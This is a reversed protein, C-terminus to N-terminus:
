ILQTNAQQHNHHHHHHHNIDFDTWYFLQTLVTRVVTDTKHILKSNQLYTCQISNTIQKHTPPVRNRPQNLCQEVLRFTVPEIGSLTMPNKWQCLGEPRVINRPNVWSIASILVLSTEQPYLRSTRLATLRVVKIHRNNQFRPAEVEQFGWPRGPRYHSQKVKVKVSTYSQSTYISNLSSKFHQSYRWAQRGESSIWWYTMGNGVGAAPIPHM